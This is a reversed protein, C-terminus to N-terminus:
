GTFYGATDVSISGDAIGTKLAELEDRLTVSVRNEFTHYPALDVSGNGLTGHYFGGGEFTGNVVLRVVEKVAVDYRKRVSTLWLDAFQPAQFFADFDVGILLTESGAEQSATGAGLGAAGAVPFIIDAGRSIFGDAIQRAREANQFAAFDAQSIFSGSGTSPDWGLVDVDTGHDENYKLVGAAFGDMYPIVTPIPLGGFTAVKGSKTTGAALYGAQFAAGEVDFTVGLLNPLQPPEFPDVIVFKQTPNARAAAVTEEQVSFMAVILSCRQSVFTRLAAPADDYSEVERARVSIDLDTAARTLGDYVGQSFAADELPGSAVQCATVSADGSRLRTFAVVGGGIMVVAVAAAAWRRRWPPRRGPAPARRAPPRKAPATPGGVDPVVRIVTVPEALGKLQVAGSDEYRVGDIRRALHTVERSALVEGPGAMGCLRAALNLAGGRYGTGVPVAEGADLGIGVELPLTPDAETENAFRRQLDLAARIAQRASAFVALAEDGRLEIVSGGRTEVGEAAIEAFKAALKAAAEDGREQTFLTYGRVDAILFTNIAGGASDERGGAENPGEAVPPDGGIM